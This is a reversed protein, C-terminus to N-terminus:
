KGVERIYREIQTRRRAKPHLKLYTRLSAAAEAHRNMSRYISGQNYYVSPNKPNLELVRAYHSLAEEFRGLQQYTVGCCYHAPALNPDLEIARLLDKLAEEKRGQMGYCIGRNSYAMANKPDVSLAQSFDQRAEEFRKMRQFVAGRNLYADVWGPNLEVARGLDVLAEKLRGMRTLVVGRSAHLEANKPDIRVAKSYDNLAEPFRKMKVLLEARNRYVGWRRPDLRIARDYDKLASEWRRETQHLNGRDNLIGVRAFSELRIDKEVQPPALEFAKDFDELSEKMRNLRMLALARHYYALYFRPDLEIARSYDELAQDYRGQDCYVDGRQTYAERNKPDFRIAMDFDQIADSFRKMTRYCQARNMYALVYEPQLEIARSFDVLAEKIRHSRVLSTGRNVYAGVYEPDIEISRTLDKISLVHNGRRAYLVGRNSYAIALKSDWQIARNFDDMARDLQNLMSYVRGRNNYAKSFRPDLRVAETYDKIAGELDGKLQRNYGRELYGGAEDLKSEVGVEPIRNFYRRILKWSSSNAGLRRRAQVLYPQAKVRRTNCLALGAESCLEHDWLVSLWRGLPEIAEELDLRGLVRCVFKAVDRDERSWVVRRGGRSGKGVLPKLGGEGSLIAVTQLDRYGAAEIVYDEMLPLSPDRGARSLGARLDKLIAELRRKRWEQLARERADVRSRLRTVETALVGYNALQGFAHRALQFDRGGLALRGIREGVERRRSRINENESDIALARELAGAAVMHAELAQSRRARDSPSERYERGSAPDVPSREELLGEVDVSALEQNAEGLAADRKAVREQRAQLENAEAQRQERQLFYGVLLTTVVVLAAVSASLTRHRLVWKWIRQDLRYRVAQLTRGGRFAEIEEQLEEVKQYRDGRHLAMAKMVVAELEAPVKAEPARESPALFEGRIIRSFLQPASKGQHPPKLTLIEYLMAGLAYIDTRADMAELDGRAQEPSMYAPTGLIAGDMTLGATERNMESDVLDFQSEHVFRELGEGASKMEFEKALGWDMVLVEGFSGVMVNAPKLDRHMIRRSHAFAIADCVKLFYKLLGVGEYAMEQHDALERYGDLIEDISQGRVLKMSLYLEGDPTLGVEHVPLINTHDLQSTIRSENLFRTRDDRSANKQSLVKIAVVRELDPDTAKLITGMGGQGITEVDRYRWNGGGAPVFDSGESKVTPGVTSRLPNAPSLGPLDSGSSESDFEFLVSEPPPPMVRTAGLNELSPGAKSELQGALRILTGFIGTELDLEVELVKEELELDGAELSRTVSEAPARDVLDLQRALDVAALVQRLKESM